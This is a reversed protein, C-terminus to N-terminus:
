KYKVKLFFLRNLELSTNKLSKASGVSYHKPETSTVSLTTNKQGDSFDSNNGKYKINQKIIIPYIGTQNNKHNAIYIFYFNVSNFTKLISAYLITNILATFGQEPVFKFLCVVQGTIQATITGLFM